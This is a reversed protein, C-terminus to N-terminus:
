HPHHRARRRCHVCGYLGLVTGTVCTWLWWERDTDELWGYSFALVVSAVAFLLTGVAVTRVGTVDLPQVDAVEGPEAGLAIGEPPPFQASDM